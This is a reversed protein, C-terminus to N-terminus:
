EAEALGEVKQDVVAADQVKEVGVKIGGLKLSLLNYLLAIITYIITAVVSYAVALILFILIGFDAFPILDDGVGPMSEQALEGMASIFLGLPVFIILSIIFTMIFSYLAVTGLDFHKIRYM